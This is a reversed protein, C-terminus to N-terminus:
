DERTVLRLRKQGGAGVKMQNRFCMLPPPWTMDFGKM